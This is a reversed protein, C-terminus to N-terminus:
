LMIPLFSAATDGTFWASWVSVFVTIRVISPSDAIVKVNLRASKEM